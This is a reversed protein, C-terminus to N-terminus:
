IVLFDGDVLDVIQVQWPNFDMEAGDFVQGSLQDTGYTDQLNPCHATQKEGSFNLFSYLTKNQHENKLILIFPNDSEIFDVTGKKLLPYQQYLHSLSRYFRHIEENINEWDLPDKEFLAPLNVAGNEQGAYILPLGSLLFCLATFPQFSEKGFTDITRPLDHNETFLM